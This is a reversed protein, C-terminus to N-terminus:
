LPTESHIGVIGVQLYIPPLTFSHIPSAPFLCSAPFTWKETLLWCEKDSELHAHGVFKVEIHRVCTSPIYVTESM